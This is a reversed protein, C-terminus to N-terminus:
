HTSALFAALCKIFCPLGWFLSNDLGFYWYHQSQSVTNYFLDRAVHLLDEKDDNERFPLMVTVLCRHWAQYYCHGYKQLLSYSCYLQNQSESSVGAEGSSSFPLLLLASHAYICSVTGVVLKGVLSAHSKGSRQSKLTGWPSGLSLLIDRQFSGSANDM